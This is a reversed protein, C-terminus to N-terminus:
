DVSPGYKEMLKRVALTTPVLIATIILGLGSLQSYNLKTADTIYVGSNLTARYMYYGFLDFPPTGGTGYFIVMSMNNTFIATMGTVVFTIFTPWIMPIYISIFERVINAGDMQASEIVSPNISSMTGTFIMVNTGFGIWLNYFLVAGFVTWDSASGGLLGFELGKEILAERGVIAEAVVRFVDTCIYKYLVVLVVSSVVHPLYLMVRFFAAGFYNKAIYYSFVLALGLVIVLNCGYLILSNRVMELNDAFFNWGTVLNDFGAFNIIYGTTAGEPMSYNQFALIFTNINVYLGFIAYMALPYLLILCYFILRKSNRNLVKKKEVSSVEKEKQNM